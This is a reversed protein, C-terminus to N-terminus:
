TQSFISTSSTISHMTLVVMNRAPIRPLLQSSSRESGALTAAMRVLSTSKMLRANDLRMVLKRTSRGSVIASTAPWQNRVSAKQPTNRKLASRESVLLM